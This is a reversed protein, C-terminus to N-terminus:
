DERKALAGRGRRQDAWEGAVVGLEEGLVEFLEGPVDHEFALMQVIEIGRTSGCQDLEVFRAARMAEPHEKSADWWSTAFLEKAM